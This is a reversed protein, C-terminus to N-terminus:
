QQTACTQSRHAVQPQDSGRTGAGSIALLDVDADIPFVDIKTEAFFFWSRLARDSEGAFQHDPAVAFRRGIKQPHVRPLFVERHVADGVLARSSCMVFICNGAAGAPSSTAAM